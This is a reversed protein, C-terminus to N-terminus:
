KKKGSFALAILIVAIIVIILTSKNMGSLFGSGPSSDDDDLIIPAGSSKVTVTTSDGATNGAYDTANCTFTYTGAYNAYKFDTGSATTSLAGGVDVNNNPDTVNCYETGDLGVTADAISATYTFLRHLNVSSKSTTISVTPATNDIGVTGIAASANVVNGTANRFGCTFNYGPSSDADTLDEFATACAAADTSLFETDDASNNVITCLSTTGIAGGSANYWITANLCEDCDTTDTTCNFTASTYNGGAAIGAISSAASALTVFTVALLIAIPLIFKQKQM